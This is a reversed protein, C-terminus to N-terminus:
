ARAYSRVYSITAATPYELIPVPRSVNGKNQACKIYEAVHADIDLRMKPWFYSNRAATRTREKGRHGAIVTDHVLTLVAPVYCEHIVFQVVPQKKCPWYHCLVGDQSLFLQSFPIPLSPLSKEDGQSWLTYSREGCTMHVNYQLCNM